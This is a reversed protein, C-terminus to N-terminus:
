LNRNHPFNACFTFFVVFVALVELVALVVFAFRAAASVFVRRFVVAALLEALEALVVFRVAGLGFFLAGFLAAETLDLCFFVATLLLGTETTGSGVGPSTRWVFDEAAASLCRSFAISNIKLFSKM